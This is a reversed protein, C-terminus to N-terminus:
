SGRGTGSRVRDSRFASGHRRACKSAAAMDAPAEQQQPVVHNNRGSSFRCEAAKKFDDSAGLDVVHDVIAIIFVTSNIM